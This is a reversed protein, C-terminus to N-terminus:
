THVASGAACCSSVKVCSVALDMAALLAASLILLQRLQDSKLDQAGSHALEVAALAAGAARLLACCSVPSSTAAQVCARLAAAAAKCQEVGSGISALLPQHKHVGAIM